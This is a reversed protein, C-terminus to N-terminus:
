THRSRPSYSLLSLSDTGVKKFEEPENAEEEDLERDLVFIHAAEIEERRTEKAAELAAVPNDTCNSATCLLRVAFDSIKPLWYSTCPNLITGSDRRRKTQGKWWHFGM